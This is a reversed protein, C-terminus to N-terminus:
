FKKTERGKRMEEISEDARGASALLNGYWLHAEPYDPKM